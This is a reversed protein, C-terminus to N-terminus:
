QRLLFTRDLSCPIVIICNIIEFGVIMVTARCNLEWLDPGSTIFFIEM